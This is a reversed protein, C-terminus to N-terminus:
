AQERLAEVARVIAEAAHDIEEETTGRGVSFRLTGRAYAFPVGMAELVPSISVENSHCASGASAAVDDYLEALLDTADLGRFGVNLTNPLGETPHGNRRM